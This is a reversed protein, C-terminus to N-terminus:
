SVGGIMYVPDRCIAMNLHCLLGVILLAIQKIECIHGCNLVQMGHCVQAQKM